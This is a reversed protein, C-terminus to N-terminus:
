PIGVVILRFCAPSICKCLLIDSAIVIDWDPRSVPFPDGWTDQPNFLLTLSCNDVKM